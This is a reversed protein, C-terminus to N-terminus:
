RCKSVCKKQLRKLARDSDEQKQLEVQQHKELESELYSASTVRGVLLHPTCLSPLTWFSILFLWYSYTVSAQIKKQFIQANLFSASKQLVPKNIVADRDSWHVFRLNRFREMYVEYVGRLEHELAEYEEM